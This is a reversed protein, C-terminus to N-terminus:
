VQIVHPYGHDYISYAFSPASKVVVPAHAYHLGSSVVLPAHIAQVPAGHIAITRPPLVVEADDNGDSSRSKADEVAQLHEARAAAVEPTDQVPQPPELPAVEQSASEDNNQQAKRVAALHEQRASKVEATEEVPQPAQNNDVPPSPLNTAAARFGLGDAVYNVTQLKNEADIYSYSGRTVGDFTKVESKASPGGSYGYSYQGLADQAHWQSSAPITHIIPAASYILPAHIVAPAGQVVLFSSM